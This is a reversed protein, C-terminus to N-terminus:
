IRYAASVKIIESQNSFSQCVCVGACPSQTTYQLLFVITVCFIPIICLVVLFKFKFPGFLVLLPGIRLLFLSSVNKDILLFNSSFFWLFVFPALTQPWPELSHKLIILENRLQSQLIFKQDSLLHEICFLSRNLKVM